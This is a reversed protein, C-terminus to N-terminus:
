NITKGVGEILSSLIICVQSKFAPYQIINAIWAIIYNVYHGLIRTMLGLKLSHLNQFIKKAM